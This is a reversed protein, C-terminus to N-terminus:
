PDGLNHELALGMWKAPELPLRIGHISSLGALVPVEPFVPLVLFSRCDISKM